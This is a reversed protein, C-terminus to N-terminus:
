AAFSYGMAPKCTKVTTDGLDVEYNTMDVYQMRFDVPGSLMVGPQHYLEKAKEYQNTAIIRTSEFMDNGPGSARCKQVKGDGCTSTILDCPEGTDICRAGNTNPSVDGLNSATFAAVFDGEGPFAGGNM